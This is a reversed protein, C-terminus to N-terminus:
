AGIWGKVADKVGLARHSVRNKEEPLLQALTKGLAPVFFVPDYGFGGEGIPERTISGHLVGEGQHIGGSSDVIVVVSRFQAKRESEPVGDMEQLLLRVNDAYTADSGAYRSSYVGPRGGLAQVELGTDDALSALGTFDHCSRAKKLANEALTQGDEVVIPVGEFDRLSFLRFQGSSVMESIERLKDRNRTAVVLDIL